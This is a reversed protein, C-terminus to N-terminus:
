RILLLRLFAAYAKLCFPFSNETICTAVFPWQMLYETHLNLSQKVLCFYAVDYLLKM